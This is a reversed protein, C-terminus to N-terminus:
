RLLKYIETRTTTDAIMPVWVRYLKSGGQLFHGTGIESADAMLDRCSSFFMERAEKSLNGMALICQFNDRAKGFYESDARQQSIIIHVNLSRGLMLLEEMKKRQTEAQKKDLSTLYAAWEDFVLVEFSHALDLGEQRKKFMSYFYNLGDTCDTYGFYREYGKAWKFDDQKFDCLTLRAGPITWSIHCLISKLASTKGTGTAGILLLHAYRPYQWKILTPYDFYEIHDANQGIIIELPNHEPEVPRLYAGGRYHFSKQYANDITNDM